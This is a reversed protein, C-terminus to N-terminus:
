YGKLPHPYLNGEEIEKGISSGELAKIIHGVTVVLHKVNLVIERKTGIL